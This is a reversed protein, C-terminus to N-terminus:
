LEGLFSLDLDIAPVPKAPEAKRRLPANFKHPADELAREGLPVRKIKGQAELSNIQKIIQAGIADEGAPNNAVINSRGLITRHADAWGQDYTRNSQLAVLKEEMSQLHQAILLMRANCEAQELASRPTFSGDVYSQLWLADLNTFHDAV